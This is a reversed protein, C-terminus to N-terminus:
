RGRGRREGQQEEATVSRLARGLGCLVGRTLEARAGSLLARTGLGEPSEEQREAGGPGQLGRGAWEEGRGKEEM